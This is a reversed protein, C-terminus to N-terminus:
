VVLCWLDQSTAPLRLVIWDLTAHALTLQDKRVFGAKFWLSGSSTAVIEM